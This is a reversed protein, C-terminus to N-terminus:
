DYFISKFLAVTSPYSINADVSNFPVWKFDINEQEDIRVARNKVYGVYFYIIRKGDGIISEEKYIKSEDLTIDIISTEEKLERLATEVSSENGERHGIPFGWMGNVNQLILVQQDDSIPIVGYSINEKM